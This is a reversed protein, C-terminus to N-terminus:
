GLLAEFHNSLLLRLDDKSQEEELITLRKKLQREFAQFDRVRYGDVFQQLRKGSYHPLQEYKMTSTHCLVSYTM